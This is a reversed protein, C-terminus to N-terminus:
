EDTFVPSREALFAQIARRAEPELLVFRLGLGPPADPGAGTARRWRVEGVCRLPPEGGPLHLYLEILTGVPRELETAIFAGVESLDRTVAQYAGGESSLDIDIRVECRVRDRREGRSVVPVRRTVVSETRRPLRQTAILEAGRARMM